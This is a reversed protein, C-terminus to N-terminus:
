LRVRSVDIQIRQESAYPAIGGSYAVVKRKDSFRSGIYELSFRISWLMGRTRGGPGGGLGGRRMFSARRSSGEDDM